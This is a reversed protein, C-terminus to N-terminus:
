TIIFIKILSYSVKSHNEWKTKITDNWPMHSQPNKPESCSAEHELNNNESSSPKFLSTQKDLINDLFDSNKPEICSETSDTNTNTTTDTTTTTTNGVGPKLDEKLRKAQRNNKKSRNKRKQRKNDNSPTIISYDEGFTNYDVSFTLDFVDDNYSTQELDSNKRLNVGNEETEDNMNVYRFVKPSRM